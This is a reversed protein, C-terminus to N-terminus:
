TAPTSRPTSLQSPTEELDTVYRLGDSSRAATLDESMPEPEVEAPDPETLSALWEADFHPDADPLAGLDDVDIPPEDGPDGKPRSIQSEQRM